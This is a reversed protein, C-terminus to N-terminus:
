VLTLQGMSPLLANGERLWLSLLFFLLTKKGNMTRIINDWRCRHRNPLGFTLKLSAALSQISMGDKFRLTPTKM